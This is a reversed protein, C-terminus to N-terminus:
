FELSSPLCWLHGVGDPCWISHPRSFTWMMLFLKVPTVPPLVHCALHVPTLPDLCHVCAANLPEVQLVVRHPRLQQPSPVLVTEQKLLWLSSYTYLSRGLGLSYPSAASMLWLFPAHLPCDGLAAIPRLRSCLLPCDECVVGSCWSM